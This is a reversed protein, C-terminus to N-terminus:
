APAPGDQLLQASRGSHSSRLAAVACFTNFDAESLPVDRGIVRQLNLASGRAQVVLLPSRGLGPKNTHEFNDLSKAYTMM